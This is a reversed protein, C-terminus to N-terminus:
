YGLKGWTIPGVIGDVAIRVKSQFTGGESDTIERIDGHVNFQYYYISTLDWNKQLNTGM